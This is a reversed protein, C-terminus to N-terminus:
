ILESAVTSVRICKSTRLAILAAEESLILAVAVLDLELFGSNSNNTNFDFLYRFFYLCNNVVLFQKIIQELSKIGSNIIQM